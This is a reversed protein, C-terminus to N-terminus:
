GPTTTAAPIATRSRARVPPRATSLVVTSGTSSSITRSGSSGPYTSNTAAVGVSSESWVWLPSKAPTARMASVPM